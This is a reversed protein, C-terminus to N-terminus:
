FNYFVINAGIHNHIMISCKISDESMNYLGAGYYNYYKSVNNYYINTENIEDAYYSRTKSKDLFILDNEEPKTRLKVDGLKNTTFKTEDCYLSIFYKSDLGNDCIIRNINKLFDSDLNCFYTAITTAENLLLANPTAVVIELYGHREIYREYLTYKKKFIM